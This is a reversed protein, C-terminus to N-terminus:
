LSSAIVRDRGEAKAQYLAQDTAAILMAPSSEQTPIVAAVGASLTVYPEVTSRRHPMKLAKVEARINEAVFVAGQLNTNPLIVGFEEGGYRAVVDVARKVAQSMAKVVLKLCEDGAQHGYTDNYLKFFDIDCLILSLYNQERLMRQWEQELYEDFRRRNSVQTLGDIAVLRQLAQNAEELKQNTEELKRYLQSQNLLRRVRQRLVPWHIPKTVFDTAGAEFALAVSDPDELGTIILVPTRDSGPIARLQRCYTFGDMIPMLADLLVMDPQRQRYAALGEAGNKAEIVQYGEQQMIKSLQFRMFEDDDIILILAPSLETSEYANSLPPQM